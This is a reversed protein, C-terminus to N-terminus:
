RNTADWHDFMGPRRDLHVVVTGCAGSETTHPTLNHRCRRPLLRGVGVGILFVGVGILIEIM